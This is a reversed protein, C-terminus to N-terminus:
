VWAVENIKIKRIKLFHYLDNEEEFKKVSFKIKNKRLWSKARLYDKEMVFIFYKKIDDQIYELFYYNIIADYSNDLRAKYLPKIKGGGQDVWKKGQFIIVKDHYKKKKNHKKKEKM